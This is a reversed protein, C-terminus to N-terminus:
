HPDVTNHINVLSPKGTSKRQPVLPVPLFSALKSRPDPEFSPSIENSGPSNKESSLTTEDVGPSTEEPTTFMRVRISESARTKLWENYQEDHTLDYGEEYRRKFRDQEEATFVAPQDSDSQRVGEGVTHQSVSDPSASYFPMYLIGKKKAIVATPTNSVTVVRRNIPFVGTNKFGGIITSPTM